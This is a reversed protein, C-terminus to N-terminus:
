ETSLWSRSSHKERLFPSISVMESADEMQNYALQPTLKINQTSKYLFFFIFHCEGTIILLFQLICTLQMRGLSRYAQM